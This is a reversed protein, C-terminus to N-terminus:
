WGRGLLSAIELMTLSAVPTVHTKCTPNGLGLVRFYVLMAPQFIGMCGQFNVHFRFIVWNFLFIMKWIEMKPNWTLKRPHLEVLFYRSEFFITWTGALWTPTTAPSSGHWAPFRIYWHHSSPQYSALQTGRTSWTINNFPQWIRSVVQTHIYGPLGVM